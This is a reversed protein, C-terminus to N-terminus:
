AQINVWYDSSKSLYDSRTVSGRLKLESLRFSQVVHIIM